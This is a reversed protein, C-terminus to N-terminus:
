EGASKCICFHKFRARKMCMECIAVRCSTCIHNIRAHQHGCDARNARCDTLKGSPSYHAQFVLKFQQFCIKNGEVYDLIFSSWRCREMNVPFESNRLWRRTLTFGTWGNDRCDILMGNRGSQTMFRDQILLRFNSIIKALPHVYGRRMASWTITNVISPECMGTLQYFTSSLACM